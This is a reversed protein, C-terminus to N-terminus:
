HGETGDNVEEGTAVSHKEYLAVSIKGEQFIIADFETPTM